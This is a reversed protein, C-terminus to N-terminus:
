ELELHHNEAKSLNVQLGEEKFVQYLINIIQEFDFQRYM